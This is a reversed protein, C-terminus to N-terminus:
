HARRAFVRGTRRAGAKVVFGPDMKLFSRVAAMRRGEAWEDKGLQLRYYNVRDAVIRRPLGFEDCAVFYYEILKRLWAMRGPRGSRELTITFSTPQAVRYCVTAAPDYWAGGRASGLLLSFVDFVPMEDIWAPLKAFVSARFVLSATPAIWGAGAFLESPAILRARPGYDWERVRSGDPYCRYGSTFAVDFGPDAEFLRTQRDLKGEDIWFDDGECFAILEGGAAAIGGKVNAIMGRNRRGRLLRVRDPHAKQLAKAVEFSGDTSHDEAIIIEFPFSAVQRCISEVAQALFPEHNYVPVIVSVKPNAPLSHRDSTEEVEPMSGPATSPVAPTEDNAEM